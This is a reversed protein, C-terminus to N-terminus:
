KDDDAFPDDSLKQEHKEALGADYGLKYAKFEADSMNGLRPRKPLPEGVFVIKATSGNENLNELEEEDLDTQVADQENELVAEDWHQIAKTIDDYASEPFDYIRGTSIGRLATKLENELLGLSGQAFGKELMQIM